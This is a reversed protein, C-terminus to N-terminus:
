IDMGPQSPPQAPSLPPRRSLWAALRQQMDVPGLLKPMSKGGLGLEAGDASGDDSSTKKKPVLVTPSERDDMSPPLPAQGSAKVPKENDIGPPEPPAGSFKAPKEDDMSPPEPPTGAFKAPKEDDM